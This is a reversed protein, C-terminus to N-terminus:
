DGGGGGWGIIFKYLIMRQLTHYRIPFITLKDPSFTHLDISISYLQSIHFIVSCSAKM